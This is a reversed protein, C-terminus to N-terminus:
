RQLLDRLAEQVRPFRFAFGLDTLRRTTPRQGKLLTDALEGLVLRMAFAPIWLIAPRGMGQALAQVFEANTPIEPALLNYAGQAREETLFFRTAEVLDAIHVWPFPQRGSGLRGGVFLRTQFYLPLFAGGQRSLVVASRTVVRRVGMPEVESTSAEWAACVQALFDNGPPSTEELATERETGYYGVASSQVLVRPKHRAARIAETLAVGGLARSELIRKKRASTWRGTALNEGVLNVVADAEEVLPAWGRSTRGDWPHLETGAPMPRARAPNRSLVIVTDGSALLRSALAHGILGTGGPILVRM